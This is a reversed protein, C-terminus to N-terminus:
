FTLRGTVVVVRGSVASGSFFGYPSSPSTVTSNIVGLNQSLSANNQPTGFNPHNLVNYAQVGVQFHIAKERILDKYMSLDVDAYHPGYVANRPINGFNTQPMQNPANAPTDPVVVGGDNITLGTGNFTDPTQFCPKSFSNCSHDFKNTTAAALVTSPASGNYLANQANTNLVSFPLGSRWYAKGAVTWGGAALQVLDNRFNYPEVYTLDLVLNHRIDFDSNSYMLYSSSTPTLQSTVANNSFTGFAPGSSGISVDDLAHSYTYSVDATLGRPDIHKYQISGGNYGSNAGNSFTGVQKFRPDPPAAPVSDFATYLSAPLYADGGLNQNATDNTILLDYGHNGAYSVIVADVPTLQQQMQLSWEVYKPSVFENPNTNYNPPSFPVGAPLSAALQNASSGQSFGTKIANYSTQAISPASGSGQSVSGAFVSPSFVNPFSDYKPQILVAAFEDAFLGIGGRIVSKGHGGIDWAFGARPEIIAGEISPFGNAHGTSITANYPTDLTASTDPFGGLYQSFCNSYCHPNGNREVRIGYDVVLTPTAKWEDQAYIGLNYEATRVVPVSSFNQVFSSNSSGPLSGSAFDRLSNFTFYGGYTGQENQNDVVYYRKLNFGFKLNHNGKLWSLDDILQYQHTAEGFPVFNWQFGINGGQGLGPSANTGGDVGEVFQTPSLALTRQLNVPNIFASQYLATVIFQNTLRPTFTYVDNLQGSVLPQPLQGTLTQNVVSQPVPLFGFDDTGRIFIRQRDSVDWDLRGSAFWETILNSGPTLSANVCPTAIGGAPATGFYTNPQGAVPTGAYSGCGLAGSSDQLPGTGTTVPTATNYSPATKLLGFMQTYLAASSPSVTDLINNQLAATPFNVETSYPEVYRIGETHAFFFLKNRLIPGGIQAAYQNSVAKGRPIGSLNNFFSNANLGDSNYNWTLLGHVRNTGGKTLYTEIAGAQRGYQASYANQIVSAQAIEQQGLSLSSGGTNSTNYFSNLNDAGNIVILNAEGPLGNSSFSALTGGTGTAMVVGPVTYAITSIDGGPAPLDQFQQTTFTTTLTASQTDILQTNNGNVTVTQMNGSPTVTLDAVSQQSVLVQVSTTNSRLSPASASITYAGPKLFSAVYRGEGNTTLIRTDTTNTNVVTVTANPVVAGVSDTVVGVLGGTVSSQASASPSSALLLAATCVAIIFITAARFMSKM